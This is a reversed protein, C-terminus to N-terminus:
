EQEQAVEKDDSEESQQDAYTARIFTRLHELSALIEKANEGEIDAKYAKDLLEEMLNYDRSGTNAMLYAADYYAEQIQEQSLHGKEVVDIFPQPTVEKKEAIMDYIVFYTESLEYKGLLGTENNSDLKIVEKVLDRYIRSNTNAENILKEIAYVKDLGKSSKVDSILTRTTEIKEKNEEIYELYDETDEIDADYNLALLIYGDSSLIYAQPWATVPYLNVVKSKKDYEAKIKEAEKKEADSADSALETKAFEKESFDVNVLIYKDKSAKVFEDNVVKEKFPLSTDAWDDGSVLLYIDKESKKAAKKATEFDSYWEAQKGCSALLLAAAVSFATIFKKM